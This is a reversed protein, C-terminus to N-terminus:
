RLVSLALAGVLGEKKVVHGAGAVRRMLRLRLPALLEPALEIHSPVRESVLNEGVLLPKAHDGGIRLERRPRVVQRFPIREVGVALLQEGTLSLDEGAVYGVGIVLDTADDLRHIVHALEVIRKYNIDLAVVAVMRSAVPM